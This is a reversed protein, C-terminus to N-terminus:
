AAGTARAIELLDAYVGYATQEPSSGISFVGVKGMLDTELLLVSRLGDTNALFDDRELVEARVRLKVGDRGRHARTVLGVRKGKAELEALKEPTLRTIGKRDVQQPTIRADMLVNALAAAKCASDWGELDYWPDAEAIGLRQAERVGEEFPLGRQMASIVIQSTSNLAGAFGLVRVQPLAHRALNFIPTGDMVVSEHLFHLGRAAAEERLAHYAHAVPGKNATVVHKGRAFAARIHTIAPEGEFPNLTTLEAVVDCPCEDLFVEVTCSTEVLVSDPPIGAPDLVYGRRTMAGTMVFPHAGRKQQLLRALARAVTGYGILALKM